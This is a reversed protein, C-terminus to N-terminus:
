SATNGRRPLGTSLLEDRKRGANSDQQELASGFLAADMALPEGISVITEWDNGGVNAVGIWRCAVKLPFLRNVQGWIQETVPRLTSPRSPPFEARLPLSFRQIGSALDDSSIPRAAAKGGARTRDRKRSRAFRRASRSTFSEPERSHSSRRPGRAAIEEPR